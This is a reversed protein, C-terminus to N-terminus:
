GKWSPNWFDRHEIHSTSNVGGIPFGKRVFKPLNKNVLRLYIELLLFCESTYFQPFQPVKFNPDSIMSLIWDFETALSFNMLRDFRLRKLDLKRCVDEKLYYWNLGTVWPSPIVHSGHPPPLHGGGEQFNRIFLKQGIKKVLRFEYLITPRMCFSVTLFEFNFFNRGGCFLEYSLWIQVMQVRTKQMCGWKILLLRNQM